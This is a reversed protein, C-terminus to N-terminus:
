LKTNTTLTNKTIGLNIAKIIRKKTLVLYNINTM